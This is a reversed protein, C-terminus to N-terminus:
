RWQFLANPLNHKTQWEEWEAEMPGVTYEVVTWTSNMRKLLFFSQTPDMVGNIFPDRYKTKSWDIARGGPRQVQVYGFAWNQMVNLHRVVFEIPGHTEAEFVPRAADLVQARLTSGRPPQVIQQAISPTVLAITITLFLTTLSRMM